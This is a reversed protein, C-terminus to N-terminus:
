FSITLKGTIWSIENESNSLIDRLNGSDAKFEMGDESTTVQASRSTAGGFHGEAERHLDSPHSVVM